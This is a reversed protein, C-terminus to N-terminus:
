QMDKVIRRNRTEKNISEISENMKENKILNNIWNNIWNNVTVIYKIPISYGCFNLVHTLLPASTESVTGM